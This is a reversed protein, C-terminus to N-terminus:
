GGGNYGHVRVELAAQLKDNEAMAAACAGQEEHLQKELLSLDEELHLHGRSGEEAAHADGGVRGCCANRSGCVCCSRTNSGSITSSRAQRRLTSAEQQFKRAREVAAKAEGDRAFPKRFVNCFWVRLCNGFTRYVHLRLLLPGNRRVTCCPEPSACLFCVLACPLRALPDILLNGVSTRQYPPCPIRERTCPVAM